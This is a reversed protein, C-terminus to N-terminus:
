ISSKNSTGAPHANKEFIHSLFYDRNPKTSDRTGRNVCAANGQCANRFFAVYINLTAIYVIEIHALSEESKRIEGESHCQIQFIASM